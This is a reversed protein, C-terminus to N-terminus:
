PACVQAGRRSAQILSPHGYIGPASLL